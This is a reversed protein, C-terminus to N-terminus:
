RSRQFSKKQNRKRSMTPILTMMELSIFIIKDFLSSYFSVMQPISLFQPDAPKVRRKSSDRTDLMKYIFGLDVNDDDAM